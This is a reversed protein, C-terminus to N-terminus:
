NSHIPQLKFSESTTQMAFKAPDKSSSFMVSLIEIVVLIYVKHLRLSAPNKTAVYAFTDLDHM